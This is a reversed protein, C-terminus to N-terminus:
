GRIPWLPLQYVYWWLVPGSALRAMSILNPVNVFSEMIGGGRSEDEEKALDRHDVSQLGLRTRRRIRDLRVSLAEVKRM